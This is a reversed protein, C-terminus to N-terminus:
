CYGLMVSQVTEADYTKGDIDVDFTATADSIVIIREKASEAVKPIGYIHEVVYLNAAMRVTTTVCHAAMLGVIMIRRVGSEQIAQKLNPEILPSNTSKVFIPELDPPASYPM